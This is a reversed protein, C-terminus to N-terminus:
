AMAHKSVWDEVAKGTGEELNAVVQKRLPQVVRDKEWSRM